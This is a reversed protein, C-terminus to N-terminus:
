SSVELKESVHELGARIGALIKFCADRRGELDVKNKELEEIESKLGNM